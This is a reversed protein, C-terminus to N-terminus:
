YICPFFCIWLFFFMCCMYLYLDGYRTYLLTSHSTVEPESSMQFQQFANVISPSAFLHIFELVTSSTLIDPNSQHNYLYETIYTLIAIVEARHSSDSDGRKSPDALPSNSIYKSSCTLLYPLYPDLTKLIMRFSSQLESHYPFGTSLEVSKMLNCFNRLCRLIDDLVDYHKYGILRAGNNAFLPHLMDCLYVIVNCGFFEFCTRVLHMNYSLILNLCRLTSLIINTDYKQSSKLIHHIIVITDDGIATVISNEGDDNDKLVHGLWLFELVDELLPKPANSASVIVRLHQMCGAVTAKHAFPPSNANRLKRLKSCWATLADPLSSNNLLELPFEIPTLEHQKPDLANSLVKAPLFEEWLSQLIM